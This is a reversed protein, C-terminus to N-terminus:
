ALPQCAGQGQAILLVHWNILRRGDDAEFDLLQRDDRVVPAPEHLYEPGVVLHEDLEALDVHGRGQGAHDLGPVKVADLGVVDAAKPPGDTQGHEVVARIRGGPALDIVKIEAAVVGKQDLDSRTQIVTPLAHGKFLRDDDVGDGLREIPGRWVFVAEIGVLIM